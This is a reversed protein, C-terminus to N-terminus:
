LGEEHMGKTFADLVRDKSEETLKIKMDKLASDLMMYPFPGMGVDPNSAHWRARGMAAELVARELANMAKRNAHGLGEDRMGKCLALLVRDKAEKRLRVNMTMLVGSLLTGPFFSAGNPHLQQWRARAMAAELVSRELKNM